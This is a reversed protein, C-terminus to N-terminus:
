DAGEASRRTPELPGRGQGGREHGVFDGGRDEKFAAVDAERDKVTLPDRSVDVAELEKDIM